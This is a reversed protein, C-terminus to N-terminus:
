RHSELGPNAKMEPRQSADGAEDKVFSTADQFVEGVKELIQNDPESRDIVPQRANPLDPLKEMRKAGVDYQTGQVESGPYQLGTAQNGKQSTPNTAVLRDFPLASHKQGTVKPDNSMRSNTYGDGGAKAPNNNGGMQVPPNQPRAGQANSPSCATTLLLVMGAVFVGLLQGLRLKQVFSIVQKM